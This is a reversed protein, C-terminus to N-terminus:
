FCLKNALNNDSSNETKSIMYESLKAISDAINEFAKIFRFIFRLLVILIVSFFTILLVWIFFLDM